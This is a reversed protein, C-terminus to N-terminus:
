RAVTNRQLLIQGRVLGAVTSTEEALQMYTHLLHWPSRERLARVPWWLYLIQPLAIATVPILSANLLGALVTGAVWALPIPFVPPMIGNRRYYRLTDIGRYYPRSFFRRLSMSPDHIVRATSVTIFRLEPCAKAIRNCLDTDEAARLSADWGGVTRLTEVPFTSTAGNLERVQYIHSSPQDNSLQDILYAVFRRLPNRSAGLRLSAPNGSGAAAMFRNAIGRLTAPEEILSGVGAVDDEQYGLALERLWRPSVVCDDDFSVYIDGKMHALGSNRSAALGLNSDHRVLRVPYKQVVESTRDVSGDDVAIIEYRDDPYDQALLSEIACGIVREGNYTCVIVSMFPQEAPQMM